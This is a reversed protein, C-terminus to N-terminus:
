FKKSDSDSGSDNNAPITALGCHVCDRSILNLLISKVYFQQECAPCRRMSMDVAFGAWLIMYVVMFTEVGRGNNLLIWLAGIYVPLTLFCVLLRTRARSIKRLRKKLNNAETKSLYESQEKSHIGSQKDPKKQM